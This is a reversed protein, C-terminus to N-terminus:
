MNSCFIEGSESYHYRGKYDLYEVVVTVKKQLIKCLLEKPELARQKSESKVVTRKVKQFEEM